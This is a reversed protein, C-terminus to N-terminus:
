ILISIDFSLNHLAKQRQDKKVKSRVNWSHSSRQGHGKMDVLGVIAEDFPQGLCMIGCNLQSTM